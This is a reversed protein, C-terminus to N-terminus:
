HQLIGCVPKWASYLSIYKFVVHFVSRKCKFFAAFLLLLKFFGYPIIGSTEPLVSPAVAESSSRRCGQAEGVGKTKREGRKQPIEDLQEM